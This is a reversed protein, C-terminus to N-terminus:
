SFSKRSLHKQSGGFRVGLSFSFSPVSAQCSKKKWNVFKLIEALNPSIVEMPVGSLM